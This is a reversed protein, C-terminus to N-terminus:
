ERKEKTATKDSRTELILFTVGLLAFMIEVLALVHGAWWIHQVGIVCTAYEFRWADWERDFWASLLGANGGYSGMMSRVTIERIATLSADAREKRALHYRRASWTADSSNRYHYTDCGEHDHGNLIITKSGFGSLVRQSTEPRLHNQERIGGGYESPFYNILPEDICIGAEKHLPVHTLVIAAERRNNRSQAESFSRGLFLLSEDRLHHDRVPEDLNMTNLVVMRLEPKAKRFIAPISSDQDDKSNLVFRTEWNVHGFQKEFRAVRASDIDGAYGIDHNGAVTIIRESWQPDEGLAEVKSSTATTEKPVTTANRFVRKWFRGARNEFEADDIWQSGLLDGLVVTHTPQTWWKVSRYIHALYYDNGLLDLRKRYGQLVRPLDTTVTSKVALVTEPLARVGDRSLQEYLRRLSPFQPADPDPLSTDGELQPDALTLLRFPAIEAPVAPKQSGPVVCAAAGQKALPFACLSIATYFYLYILGIAAPPLFFRALVFFLSSLRM